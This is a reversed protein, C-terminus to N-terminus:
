IASIQSILRSGALNAFLIFYCLFDVHAEKKQAPIEKQNSKQGTRKASLFAPDKSTLTEM